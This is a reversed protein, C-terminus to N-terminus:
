WGHPTFDQLKNIWLWNINMVEYLIFIYKELNVSHYLFRTKFDVASLRIQRSEIQCYIKLTIGWFVKELNLIWFKLLMNISLKM